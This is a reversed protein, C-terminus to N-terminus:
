QVIYLKRQIRDYLHLFRELDIRTLYVLNLYRLLAASGIVPHQTLYIALKRLTLNDDRKRLMASIILSHELEQRLAYAKVLKSSFCNRLLLCSTMVAKHRHIMREVAEKNEWPGM